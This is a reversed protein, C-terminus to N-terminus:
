KQEGKANSANLKDIQRKQIMYKIEYSLTHVLGYFSSFIWLTLIINIFGTMLGVSTLYHTCVGVIIIKALIHIMWTFPTIRWVDKLFSVIQKKNM